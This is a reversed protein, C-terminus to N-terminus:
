KDTKNEEIYRDFEAMPIVYSRGVKVAQLKGSRIQGMIFAYSVPIIDLLERITYGEIQQLAAMRARYAEAEERKIFYKRGIHYAPLVAHEIDRKVRAYPIAALESVAKLTLYDNTNEEMKRDSM